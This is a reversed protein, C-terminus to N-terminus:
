LYKIMDEASKICFDTWNPLADHSNNPTIMAAELPDKGTEAADLWYLAWGKFHEHIDCALQKSLWQWTEISDGEREDYSDSIDWDGDQDVTSVEVWHKGNERGMNICNATQHWQVPCDKEGCCYPTWDGAEGDEWEFDGDDCVDFFEDLSLPKEKCEATYIIHNLKTIKSKQEDTLIPIEPNFKWFTSCDDCSLEFDGSDCDWGEICYFESNCKPCVTDLEPDDNDYEPPYATKWQDYTM